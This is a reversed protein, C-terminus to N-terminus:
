GGNGRLNLASLLITLKIQQNTTAEMTAIFADAVSNKFARANANTIPRAGNGDVVIGDDAPIATNMGLATWDLALDKALWYTEEFLAALRRQRTVYEIAAMNTNDAM